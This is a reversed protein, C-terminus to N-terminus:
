CTTVGVLRGVREGWAAEYGSCPDLRGKPYAGFCRIDCVRRIPIVVGFFRLCVVEPVQSAINGAGGVALGPLLRLQLPDFM